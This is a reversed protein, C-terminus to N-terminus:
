QSFNQLTWLFVLVIFIKKWTLLRLTVLFVRSFTNELSDQLINWFIEELSSKGAATEPLESPTNLVRYFGTRMPELSLESSMQISWIKVIPSKSFSVYILFYIMTENILCLQLNNLLNTCFYHVVIFNM